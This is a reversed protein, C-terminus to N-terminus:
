IATLQVTELLQLRYKEVLDLGQKMSRQDYFCKTNHADRVLVKNKDM